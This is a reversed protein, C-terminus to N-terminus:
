RGRCSCKISDMAAGHLEILVELTDEFGPKIPGINFCFFSGTNMAIKNGFSDFAICKIEVSSNFTTKSTNTYTVLAYAYDGKIWIRDIVIQQALLFPTPYFLFIIILLLFMKKM